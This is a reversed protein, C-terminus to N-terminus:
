LIQLIAIVIVRWTFKGDSNWDDMVINTRKNMLFTMWFTVMTVCFIMNLTTAPFLPQCQNGWNFRHKGRIFGIHGLVTYGMRM